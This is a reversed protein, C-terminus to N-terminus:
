LISYEDTLIVTKGDVVATESSTTLQSIPGTGAAKLHRAYIVDAANTIWGSLIAFGVNFSILFCRCFLFLYLLLTHGKILKVNSGDSFDLKKNGWNTCNCDRLLSLSDNFVIMKLYM